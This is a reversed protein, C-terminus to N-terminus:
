PRSIPRAGGALGFAALRTLRKLFLDTSDSPPLLEGCGECLIEALRDVGPLPGPGGPRTSRTENRCTECFM